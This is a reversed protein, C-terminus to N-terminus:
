EGSSNEDNTGNEIGIERIHEALEDVVSLEREDIEKRANYILKGILIVVDKILPRELKLQPAMWMWTLAAKQYRERTDLFFGTILLIWM